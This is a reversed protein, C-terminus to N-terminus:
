QGDYVITLGSAQKIKGIAQLLLDGSNNPGGAPNLQVHLARCPDYAVPQDSGPQTDLFRYTGTRSLDPMRTHAPVQGGLGPLGNAKVSVVLFALLVAAVPWRMRQRRRRRARPLPPPPPLTGPM